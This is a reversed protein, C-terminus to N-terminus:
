IVKVSGSCIATTVLYVSGFWILVPVIESIFFAPFASLLFPSTLLWCLIYDGPLFVSSVFILYFHPNM